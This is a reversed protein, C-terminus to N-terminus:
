RLEGLLYQGFCDGTGKFEWEMFECFERLASILQGVLNKSIGCTVDNMYKSDGWLYIRELVGKYSCLQPMSVSQILVGSKSKYPSFRISPQDLIKFLVRDDYRPDKTLSILLTKSM